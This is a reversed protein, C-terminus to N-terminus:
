RGGREMDVQRKYTAMAIVGINLAVDGLVGRIEWWFLQPMALNLLMGVVGLVAPQAYFWRWAVFREARSCADYWVASWLMM